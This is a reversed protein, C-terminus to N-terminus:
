LNVYCIYVKHIDIPFTRNLLFLNRYFIYVNIFTEMRFGWTPSFKWLFYERQHLYGYSFSVNTFAEMSFNGTTDIFFIRKTFTEMSFRWTPLSKWTEISFRWTTEPLLFQILLSNITSLYYPLELHVINYINHIIYSFFLIDILIQIKENLKM